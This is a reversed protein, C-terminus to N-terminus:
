RRRRRAAVGVAALGALMLAYTQPEPIAPAIGQANAVFFTEPGGTADGLQASLGIRYSGIPSTAAALFTNAQAAQQADLGFVFGSNGIGPNTSAFVVPEATNFSIAAGGAPDFFTLVLSSLTISNSAPENANFVIRLDAADTLGLSSLSPLGVQSEGTLADGSTGLGAGVAFVAGSENSGSGQGQLTLVTTVTGLGTGGLNVGELYVLNASAASPLALAAALAATQLSSLSPRTM